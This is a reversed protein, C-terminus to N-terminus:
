KRGEKKYIYEKFKLFNDKEKFFIYIVNFTSNMNLNNNKIIDNIMAVEELTILKIGIADIIYYGNILLVFRDYLDDKAIKVFINKLKFYFEIEKIDVMEKFSCDFIIYGNYEKIKKEIDLNFKDKDIYFRENSNVLTVIM